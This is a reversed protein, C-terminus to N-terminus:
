SKTNAKSSKPSPKRKAQPSSSSSISKQCKAEKPKTHKADYQAIEALQVQRKHKRALLAAEEAKAVNLKADKIAADRLRAREDASEPMMKRALLLAKTKEHWSGGRVVSAISLIGIWDVGKKVLDNVM